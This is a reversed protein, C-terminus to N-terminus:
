KFKKLDETLGHLAKRVAKGQEVRYHKLAISLATLGNDFVELTEICEKTEFGQDWCLLMTRRDRNMVSMGSMVIELANKAGYFSGSEAYPQLFKLEEKTLATPYDSPKKIVLKGCNGGFSPSAVLLLAAICLLSFVHRV